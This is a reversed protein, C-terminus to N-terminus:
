LIVPYGSISPVRSSRRIRGGCLVVWFGFGVYSLMTWVSRSSWCGLATVVARPLGNGVRRHLDKLWNGSLGPSDRRVVCKNTSVYGDEWGGDSRERGPGARPGQLRVMFWGRLRAPGPGLTTLAAFERPFNTGRQAGYRELSEAGRQGRLRLSANVQQPLPSGLLPLRHHGLLALASVWQWRVAPPLLLPLPSCPPRRRRPRCHARRTAPGAAM